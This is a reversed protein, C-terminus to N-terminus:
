RSVTSPPPPTCSCMCTSCINCALALKITRPLGSAKEGAIVWQM